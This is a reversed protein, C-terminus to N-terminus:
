YSEIIGHNIAKSLGFDDADIILKPM